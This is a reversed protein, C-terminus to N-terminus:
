FIANPLRQTNWNIRGTVEAIDVIITIHVVITSGIRVTNARIECSHLLVHKWAYCKSLFSQGNM